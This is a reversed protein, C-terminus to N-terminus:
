KFESDQISYWNIYKNLIKNKELDTMEDIM